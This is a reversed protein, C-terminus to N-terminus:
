NPVRPPAYKNRRPVPAGFRKKKVKEKIKKKKGKM